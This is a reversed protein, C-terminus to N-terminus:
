HSWQQIYESPVETVPYTKNHNISENPHQKDHKFSTLNLANRIIINLMHYTINDSQLNIKHKVVLMNSERINKTVLMNLLSTGIVIAGVIPDTDQSTIRPPHSPGVITKHHWQRNPPVAYKTTIKRM